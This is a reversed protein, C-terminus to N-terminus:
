KIMSTSRFALFNTLNLLDCWLAPGSMTDDVPFHKRASFNRRLKMIMTYEM